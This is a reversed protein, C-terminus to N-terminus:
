YALKRAMSSGSDGQFNPFGIKPTLNEEAILFELCYPHYPREIWVASFISIQHLVTKGAISTFIKFFGDVSNGLVLFINLLQLSLKLLRAKHGAEQM